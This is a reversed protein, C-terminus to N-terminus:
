WLVDHESRETIVIFERVISLTKSCFIICYWLAVSPWHANMWNRVPKLRVLVLLFYGVNGTRLRAHCRHLRIVHGCTPCSDPFANRSSWSWRKRTCSSARRPRLCGWLAVCHPSVGDHRWCRCREPATWRHMLSSWGVIIVVHTPIFRVIGEMSHIRLVGVDFM